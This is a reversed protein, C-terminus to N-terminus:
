IGYWSLSNFSYHQKNYEEVNLTDLLFRITSLKKGPSRSRQIGGAGDLLESWTPPDHLVGGVVVVVEGQPLM